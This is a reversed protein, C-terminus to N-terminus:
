RIFTEIVVAKIKQCAPCIDQNGKYGKDSFASKREPEIQMRKDESDFKQGCIECRLKM